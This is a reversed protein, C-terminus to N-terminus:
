IPGLFLTLSILLLAKALRVRRVLSLKLPSAIIM